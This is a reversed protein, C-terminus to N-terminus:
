AKAPREALLKLVLEHIAEHDAVQPGIEWEGDITRLVLFRARRTYPYISGGWELAGSGTIQDLPLWGKRHGRVFELGTTYVRLADRKPASKWFVFVAIGVAVCAGAGWAALVANASFAGALLVLVALVGALVFGAMAQGQFPAAHAVALLEGREPTTVTLERFACGPEHPGV